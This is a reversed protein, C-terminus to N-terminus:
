LNHQQVMTTVHVCYAQQTLTCFFSLSAFFLSFFSSPFCSDLTEASHQFSNNQEALQWWTTLSTFQLRYFHRHGESKKRVPLYIFLYIFSHIISFMSTYFGELPHGDRIFSTRCGSGSQDSKCCGAKCVTSAMRRKHLTCSNGGREKAPSLFCVPQHFGLIM